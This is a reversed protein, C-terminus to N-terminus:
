EAKTKLNKYDELGQILEDIQKDNPPLPNEPEKDRQKLRNKGLWVLMTNDGKSAKEFQKAMLISEGKTYFRRSYQSFMEKKESQCHSYLTEENMGLYGAIQVGSCGAILLSNVKDWDIVVQPRGPKTPDRNPNPLFKPKKAM